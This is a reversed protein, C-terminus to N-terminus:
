ANAGTTPAKGLYGRVAAFVQEFMEQTLRKTNTNYRSCHYSDFLALGRALPHQAGHSFPADKARVGLAALTSQHAIRGLCVIADLDPLADIRAKLFPRCTRIELPTPKNEPPACRVANSIMAGVLTLGDGPDAAYAGKSFGYKALTKYLLDGAYDGTFPRGTRNAGHLGPALGVVLLRATAPGFSPAPGNFYAPHSIKNTERYGALRPCLACSKQPEPSAGHAESIAKRAAAGTM